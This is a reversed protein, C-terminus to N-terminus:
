LPTLEPLIRNQLGRALEVLDTSTSAGPKSQSGRSILLDIVVLVLRTTETSAIINDLVERSHLHNSLLKSFLTVTERILCSRCDSVCCILYIM